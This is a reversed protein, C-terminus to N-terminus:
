RFVVNSTHMELQNTVPQVTAFVRQALENGVGATPGSAGTWSLSKRDGGLVSRAYHQETLVVNQEEWGNEGSLVWNAGTVRMFGYANNSYRTPIFRTCPYGGYASGYPSPGAMVLHMSSAVIDIQSYWSWHAPDTDIFLGGLNILRAGSRASTLEFPLTEMAAGGVNIKMLGARSYYNDSASESGYDDTLSMDVTVLKAVSGGAFTAGIVAGTISKSGTYTTASGGAIGTGGNWASSARWYTSGDLFPETAFKESAGLSPGLDIYPEDAPVTYSWTRAQLSSTLILNPDSEYITGVSYNKFFSKTRTNSRAGQCADEDALVTWTASANPPTGTIAILFVGRLINPVGRSAQQYITGIESSIIAQDGTATVDLCRTNYETNTTGVTAIQVAGAAPHDFDGFRTFALSGAGNNYDVRWVSGDPAIYLWSLSNLEVGFIVRNYGSILGYNRWEMGAALETPTQDLAAQGPRMVKLCDGGIPVAGALARTTANPLELVGNKILGHWPDGYRLESM